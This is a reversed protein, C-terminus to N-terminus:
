LGRLLRCYRELTQQSSLFVDLSRRRKRGLYIVCYFPGIRKGKRSNWPFPTLLKKRKSPNDSKVPPSERKKRASSSLQPASTAVDRRAKSPSEKRKPLTRAPLLSALTRRKSPLRRAPTADRRGLSESHVPSVLVTPM